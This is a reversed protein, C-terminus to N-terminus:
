NEKEREGERDERSRDTKCVGWLFDTANERVIKGPFPHELPEAM